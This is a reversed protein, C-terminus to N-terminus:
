DLTTIMFGIIFHADSSTNINISTNTVRLTINSRDGTTDNDVAPLAITMGSSSGKPIFYPVMALSRGINENIGTAM